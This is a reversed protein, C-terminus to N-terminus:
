PRGGHPPAQTWLPRALRAVHTVREVLGTGVFGHRYRHTDHEAAEAFSGHRRLTTWTEDRMSGSVYGTFFRLVRGDEGAEYSVWWRGEDGADARLVARIYLALRARLLRPPTGHLHYARAVADHLPQWHTVLIPRVNLAAWEGWGPAGRLVGLALRLAARSTGTLDDDAM